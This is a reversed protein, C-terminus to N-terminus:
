TFSKLSANRTEIRILKMLRSSRNEINNGIVNLPLSTFVVTYKESVKGTNPDKKHDVEIEYQARMDVNFKPRDFCGKLDSKNTIDVPVAYDPYIDIKATPDDLLTITAKFLDRSNFAGLWSAVGRGIGQNWQMLMNPFKSTLYVPETRGDKTYTEKTDYIPFKPGNESFFCDMAYKSLSASAYRSSAPRLTDMGGFNGSPVIYPIMM